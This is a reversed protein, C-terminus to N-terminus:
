NQSNKSEFVKLIGTKGTGWKGFLGINISDESYELASFLWEVFASHSFQDEGEKRIAIDPILKFNIKETTNNPM